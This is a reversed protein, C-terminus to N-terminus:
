RPIMPSLFVKHLHLADLDKLMLLILLYCLGMRLGKYLLLLVCHGLNLVSIYHKQGLYDSSAFSAQGLAESPAIAISASNHESNHRIAVSPVLNQRPRELEASAIKDAIIKDNVM